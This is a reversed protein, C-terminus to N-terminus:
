LENGSNNGTTGFPEIRSVNNSIYKFSREKNM